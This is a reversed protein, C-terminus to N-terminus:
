APVENLRTFPGLLRIAAENYAAAADALSDFDGLTYLKKAVSIKARYKRRAAHFHVGRVGTKSRKGPSRNHNNQSFSVQRLNAIRNDARDGNVHDLIADAALSGYHLVYAVRHAYYKRGNAYLSLYGRHHKKEARLGHVCAPLRPDAAFCVGGTIPDYTYCWLEDRTIELARSM